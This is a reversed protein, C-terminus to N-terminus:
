EPDEFMHLYLSYIFDDTLKLSEERKKRISYAKDMSKLISKQKEITPIKIELDLKM